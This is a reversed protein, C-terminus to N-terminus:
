KEEKEEEKKEKVEIWGRRRIYTYRYSRLLEARAPKVFDTRM